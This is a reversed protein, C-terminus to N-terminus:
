QHQGVVEGLKVAVAEGSDTGSSAAVAAEGGSVILL